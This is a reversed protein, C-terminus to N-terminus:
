WNMSKITYDATLRKTYHYSGGVSFGGNILSAKYTANISANLTVTVTATYSVKVGVTPWANGTPGTPNVSGGFSGVRFYSWGEVYQTTYLLKNFQGFSGSSYLELAVENTFAGSMAGLDKKHIHRYTTASSKANFGTANSDFIWSELERGNVDVIAFIFTGNNESEVLRYEDSDYETEIILNHEPTVFSINENESYAGIPKSSGLLLIAVLVCLGIRKLIKM